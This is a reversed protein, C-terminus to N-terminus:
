KCLREVQENHALIQEVLEDSILDVDDSTPRIVNAILCFDSKPTTECGTVAITLLCLLCM